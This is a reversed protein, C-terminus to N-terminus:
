SPRSIISTIRPDLVEASVTGSDLSYGEGSVLSRLSPSEPAERGSSAVSCSGSFKKQQVINTEFRTRLEDKLLRCVRKLTHM